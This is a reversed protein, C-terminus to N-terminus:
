VKTAQQHTLCLGILSGGDHSSVAEQHLIQFPGAHRALIPSTVKRVQVRKLGREDRSSQGM